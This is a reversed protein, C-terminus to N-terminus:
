STIKVRRRGGGEEAQEQQSIKSKLKIDGNDRIKIIM